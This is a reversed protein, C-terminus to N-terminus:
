STQARLSRFQKQVVDYTSMEWPWGPTINLQKALDERSMTLYPSMLQRAYKKMLRRAEEVGKTDPSTSIGTPNQFYSIHPANLKFFRKGHLISRMWFEYDGASKFSTDFLGLEEHLKARWMPANHPSNFCLLNNATVIPLDSKFGYEAVQEFTIESNFSYFFDQYVVDFFSFRDLVAAQIQFSDQRRLDDLNTNTLYSGRALRIGENWADYIGLKYNIRKYIINSYVKQYKEIIQQEGEPSDADIIILESKDFLSQSTINELFQEIYNRGKYMSAIASVIFDGSHRFTREELPIARNEPQECYGISLMSSREDWRERTLMENKGMMECIHPNQDYTNPVEIRAFYESIFRNLLTSRRRPDEKLFAKFNELQKPNTGGGQLLVEAIQLIFQGDSLTKAGSTQLAEESNAVIDIFKALPLGNELATFFGGAGDPDPDRNLFHKYVLQIVEAIDDGSLFPTVPGNAVVQSDAFPLDPGNRPEQAEASSSIGVSLASFSMGNRLLSMHHHLGSPDPERGLWRHYVLRVALTMQHDVSGSEPAAFLFAKERAIQKVDSDNTIAAVVSTLPTGGKLLKVAAELEDSDPARGHVLHYIIEISTQFDAASSFMQYPKDSSTGLASQSFRNIGSSAAVIVRRLKKQVGLNFRNGSGNDSIKNSSRRASELAERLQRVEETLALLRTRVQESEAESETRQTRLREIESVLLDVEGFSRNRDAHLYHPEEQLEKIADAPAVGAGLRRKHDM